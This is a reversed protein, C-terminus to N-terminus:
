DSDGKKVLSRIRFYVPQNLGQVEAVVVTGSNEAALSIEVVHSSLFGPLSTAPLHLIAVTQTMARELHSFM